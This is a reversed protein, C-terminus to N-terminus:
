QNAVAIEGDNVAGVLVRKVHEGLSGMSQQINSTTMNEIGILKNINVIVKRVHSEGNIDGMGSADSAASPHLGKDLMGQLSANAGAKDKNNGDRTLKMSAVDFDREEKGQTYWKSVSAIAAANKDHFSQGFPLQDYISIAGIAIGAMANQFVTIVGNALQRLVIVFNPALDFLKQKATDIAAGISDAWQPGYNAVVIMAGLVAGVALAVGGFSAIAAVAFADMELNLGVMELAAISISSIFSWVATVAGVAIEQVWMAVTLTWVRMLGIGTSLWAWLKTAGLMKTLSIISTLGLAFMATGAVADMAVSAYVTLGGTYKFLSLKANTLWTNVAAMKEAQTQALTNWKQSMDNANAMEASLSKFKDLHDLLISIGKFSRADVVGALLGKDNLKKLENLRTFIDKMPDAIVSMNAGAAQVRQMSIKKMFDSKSLFKDFQEMGMGAMEPTLGRQMMTAIAAGTQNILWGQRAAMPAARQFANMAAEGDNPNVLALKMLTATLINSGLVTQSAKVNFADLGNTIAKTAGLVDNNMIKSLLGANDAMSKLGLPDNKMEPRLGVITETGRVIDTAALNYKYGTDKAMDGFANLEKGTKGTEIGLLTLQQEYDIGPKTLNEFGSKIQNIAQNALTFKLLGSTLKDLGGGAAETAKKVGYFKDQMADVRQNVRAGIAQFGDFSTTAAATASIIKDMPGSVLDDLKFLWSTTFDSM